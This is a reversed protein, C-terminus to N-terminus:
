IGAEPRDLPHQEARRWFLPEDARMLLLHAIVDDTPVMVGAFTARYYGIPHLCLTVFPHLKGGHTHPTLVVTPRSRRFVYTLGSRASTEIFMGSLVYTKILHPRILTSLRSLAKIEADMKWAGEAAAEFLAFHSAWRREPFDRDGLVCHAGTADRYIYVQARLRSSWFVNRVDITEDVDETSCAWRGLIEERTADEPLYLSEFRAAWPNRNEITLGLGVIPMPFGCWEGSAEAMREIVDRIDDWTMGATFTPLESV